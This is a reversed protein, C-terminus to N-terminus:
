SSVKVFHDGLDAFLPEKWRRVDLTLCRSTLPYAELFAVRAALRSEARVYFGSRDLADAGPEVAAVRFEPLTLPHPRNNKTTAM